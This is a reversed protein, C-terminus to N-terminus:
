LSLLVNASPNGSTIKSHNYTDAACRKYSGVLLRITSHPSSYTGIYPSKSSTYYHPSQPLPSGYGHGSVALQAHAPGQAQAARAEYADNLGAGEVSALTTHRVVRMSCDDFYNAQHKM